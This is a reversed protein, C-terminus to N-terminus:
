CNAAERVSIGFCIKYNSRQLMVITKFELTSTDALPMPLHHSSLAQIDSLTHLYEEV